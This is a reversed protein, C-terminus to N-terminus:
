DYKIVKVGAEEAQKVMNATGKGGPFAVVLDPKGEVLMRKNRIHGAARGHQEWDAPFEKLGTWNVVAFDAALADAGKAGGEIITLGSPLTNGYEDPEAWLKYEDAIQYLTTWVKEKDQYDRGGCVLVRM